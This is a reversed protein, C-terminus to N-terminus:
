IMGIPRGVGRAGARGQGRGPGPRARTTITAEQSEGQEGHLGSAVIVRVIPAQHFKNKSNLIVNARSDTVRVAENVQMELCSNFGILAKIVFEVKEGSHELTCHKWLPSEDDENRLDAQHELGRSYANRGSEGEYIAKRGAKLCIKCQIRYGISNKECRGSKGNACCLCDERGCGRARLPESKADQRVSDGAREIVAIRIGSTVEFKQCVQKLKSTLQGATPDLILPASIQNPKSQHWSVKRSEKEM